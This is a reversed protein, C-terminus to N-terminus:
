ASSGEQGGCMSWALAVAAQFTGFPAVGSGESGGEVFTRKGQDASTTQEEGVSVACCGSGTTGHGAFFFEVRSRVSVDM